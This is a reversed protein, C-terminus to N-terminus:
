MFWTNNPTFSVVQEKVTQNHSFLAVTLSNMQQDVDNKNHGRQKNKCSQACTLLSRPRLFCQHRISLTSHNSGLKFGCMCHKRTVMIYNQQFSIM